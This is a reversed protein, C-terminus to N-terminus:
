KIGRKEERAERRYDMELEYLYELRGMENGNGEKRAQEWKASAEPFNPFRLRKKFNLKKM